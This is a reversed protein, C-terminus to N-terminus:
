VQAPRRLFKVGCQSPDPSGRTSDGCGNAALNRGHTLGQRIQAETESKGDHYDEQQERRVELGQAEREDHNRGNRSDEAPDDDGEEYTTGGQVYLGEHSGDHSNS